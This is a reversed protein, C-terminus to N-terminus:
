PTARGELRAVGEALAEELRILDAERWVLPLGVDRAAEEALARYDASVPTTLAVVRKHSEAFLARIAEPHDGFTDAMTEKWGRAWEELLFYDGEGLADFYPDDGILSAICNERAIRVVNPRDALDDMLPHCHGYYLLVPEAAYRDLAAVLQRELAELDSHLSPPLFAIRAPWRNKEVLHRIEKELVGCGLLVFPKGKM